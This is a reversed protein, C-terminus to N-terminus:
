VLQEVLLVGEELAEADEDHESLSEVLERCVRQHAVRDGPPEEGGFQVGLLHGCLYEYHYQLLLVRCSEVHHQLGQVLVELDSLVEM